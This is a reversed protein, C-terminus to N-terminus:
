VKELDFRWSEPPHVDTIMLPSGVMSCIRSVIRMRAERRNLGFGLVSLAVQWWAPKYEVHWKSEGIRYIDLKHVYFGDFKCKRFMMQPYVKIDSM